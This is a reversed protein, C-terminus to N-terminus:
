LRDNADATTDATSESDSTTSSETSWWLEIDVAAASPPPAHKINAGDMLNHQTASNVPASSPGSMLNMGNQMQPFDKGVEPM